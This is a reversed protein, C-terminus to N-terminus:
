NLCFEYVVAMSGFDMTYELKYIKRLTEGLSLNKEIIINIEKESM